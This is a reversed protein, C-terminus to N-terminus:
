SRGKIECEQTCDTSEWICPRMAAFTSCEYTISCYSEFWVWHSVPWRIIFFNVFCSLVFIGVFHQLHDIKLLSTSFPQKAVTHALPVTHYLLFIYAHVSVPLPQINVSSYIILSSGFLPMLFTNRSCISTSEFIRICWFHSVDSLLNRRIVALCTLATYSSCLFTSM